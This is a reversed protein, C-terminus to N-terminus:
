LYLEFLQLLTRQLFVTTSSIPLNKNKFLSPFTTKHTCACTPASHAGHPQPEGRAAAAAAGRQCLAGRAAAGPLCERM